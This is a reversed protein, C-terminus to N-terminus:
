NKVCYLVTIYPNTITVNSQNLHNAYAYSLELLQTSDKGTYIYSSTARYGYIPYNDVDSGGKNWPIHNGHSINGNWPIDYVGLSVYDASNYQGNTDVDADKESWVTDKYVHQHAPLQNAELKITSKWWIGGFGTGAWMLFRNDAEGFRSWGDPCRWDTKRGDFAMIAWSPITEQVVTVNDWNFKFVTDLKDMIDNWKDLTLLAINKFQCFFCPAEEVEPLKECSQTTGSYQYGEKCGFTCGLANGAIFDVVDENRGDLDPSYSWETLNTPASDGYFLTANEPKNDYPCYSSCQDEGDLYCGEACQNNNNPQPPRCPIKFSVTTPNTDIIQLKCCRKNADLYCSYYKECENKDSGQYSPCAVCSWATSQSQAQVMLGVSSLTLVASLGILMKANNFIKKM